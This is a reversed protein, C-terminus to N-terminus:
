INWQRFTLDITITVTDDEFEEAGVALTDDADIDKFEFPIKIFLPDGESMLDVDYSGADLQEGRLAVGAAGAVVAQLTDVPVLATVPTYAPAGASTKYELGTYFHDSFDGAPLGDVVTVALSELEAPVTGYNALMFYLDGAAGPYLNQLTLTIKDKEQDVAEDGVVVGLSDGGQTYAVFKGASFENAAAFEVKNNDAPIVDGVFQLDFVGTNVTAEVKLNDTWYAYGVGLIMLTLVLTLSLLMTKRM